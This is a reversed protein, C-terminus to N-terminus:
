MNNRPSYKFILYKFDQDNKLILLLAEKGFSFNGFSVQRGDQIVMAGEKKRADAVDFINALANGECATIKMKEVNQQLWQRNSYELSRKESDDLVKIVWITHDM